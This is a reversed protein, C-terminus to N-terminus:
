VSNEMKAKYFNIYSELQTALVPPMELPKEISTAFQMFAEPHHTRKGTEISIPIFKSFLLAKVHSQAENLMLMEVLLYNPKAELLTSQICVNENYKAPRQYVIEHSGVVWALGMTYYDSLRVQYSNKLHDERANMFYDLYRANNLHGLLDCDSFRIPYFSFPTQQM